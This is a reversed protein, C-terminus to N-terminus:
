SHVRQDGEKIGNPVITKTDSITAALLAEDLVRVIFAIQEETIILPPLLRVVCGHRGGLECILGRKLAEQQVAKAYHTDATPNGLSDKQANNAILEIGIMLGKGRVEGVQPHSLALTKLQQMLQEGLVEARKALHHHKILQLTKCGSVMALQNGRFTGAHGGPSWADFRKNFAIVSLPLGGGIAKSMLVIDPQIAAHEFAFMKGSRGFGSQIEDLILLIDLESCLKRLGQLWKVPAPIVGGEGQIAEVIIAAPKTIGGEPDLLQNSLYHLSENSNDSYRQGFPSRFPYPYPLFHVDAMLGGVANKAGLNGTLSLAGNTMGHYGGQFAIVSRRGTVTKALKIAAEVADAGSPGCFQIKANQSFDTPLTTLLETVFNDKAPTAIDLTQFPQLSTVAEVLAQNIDPHNHGLPLAGACALCDLYVQRQEDMVLAGSAKKIAMPIRRPYSRVESEREAQRRLIATSNLQYLTGSAPLQWGDVSHKALATDTTIPVTQNTLM